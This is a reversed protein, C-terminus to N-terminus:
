GADVSLELVIEVKGNLLYKGDIQQGTIDTVTLNGRFCGDDSMTSLVANLADVQDLTLTMEFPAGLYTDASFNGLSYAFIFEGDGDYLTFTINGNLNPSSGELTWYSAAVYRASEIDGQYERWTEYQSLCFYEDESVTTNTGSPSFNIVVPMNIDLKSLEDCGSSFLFSLFLLSISVKILIKKM